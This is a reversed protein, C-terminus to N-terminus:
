RPMEYIELLAIGAEEAAGTVQATYNGPPLTVVLAADVSRNILPFAGVSVFASALAPDDSWDDNAAIQNSGSFIALHPNALVGTVGFPTLSAGAARILLTSPGGSLTFGAILADNGSGARTRSSLNILRLASGGGGNSLCGDYVEALVTGSSNAKATIQASYGGSAANILLATDASTAPLAFAGVSSALAAIRPDGGWADNEGIKTAGSFVELRPESLASTVGFSALAPGVGRVLLPISGSGDTGVTFGVILSETGVGVGSRIALNGLRGPQPALVEFDVDTPNISVRPANPAVLLVDARSYSVIRSRVDILTIGRLQYKTGAADHPIRLSVVGSAVDSTTISLTNNETSNAAFSIQMSKISSTGPVATFSLTATDGANLSPGNTLAIRALQPWVPAVPGTVTFFSPFQLSHRTDSPSSTAHLATINGNSSYTVINGVSDTAVLRSVLYARGGDATPVLSGSAKGEGLLTLDVGTTTEGTLIVRLSTLPASGPTYAVSFTTAEGVAVSDPGSRTISTLVPARYNPAAGTVTFEVRFSPSVGPAVSGGSLSQASGDGSFKVMRDYMTLAIVEQLEYRGNVWDPTVVVSAVGQLSDGIINLTGSLNPNTPVPYNGIQPMQWPALFSFTANSLPATGSAFRYGIKVTDGPSVVAPSLLSIATLRPLEYGFAPQVLILLVLVATWRAPLRLM